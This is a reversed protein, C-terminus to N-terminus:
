GKGAFQVGDYAFCCSSVELNMLFTSFADSRVQCVIQRLADSSNTASIGRPPPHIPTPQRTPPDTSIRGVNDKDTCVTAFSAGIWMARRRSLRSAVLITKSDADNSTKLQSVKRRWITLQQESRSIRIIYAIRKRSALSPSNISRFTRTMYLIRQPLHRSDNHDTSM